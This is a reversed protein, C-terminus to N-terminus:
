RHMRNWVIAYCYGILYGMVATFVILTLAASVDFSKVVLPISMMHAWFVFDIILQAWGLAVLIAWIFHFGGLVVAVTLAAKKPNIHHNM